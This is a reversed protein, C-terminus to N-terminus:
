LTVFGPIKLSKLKAGPVAQVIPGRSELTLYSQATDTTAVKHESNEIVANVAIRQTNRIRALKAGMTDKNSHVAKIKNYTPRNPMNIDMDDYARDIVSKYIPETDGFESELASRCCADEVNEKHIGVLVAVLLGALGLSIAAETIM